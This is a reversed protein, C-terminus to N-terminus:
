AGARSPWSAVSAGDASAGDALARVYGVYRDVMELGIGDTDPDGAAALRNLAREVRLMVHLLPFFREDLHVRRMYSRVVEQVERTWRDREDRVVFVQHFRRLKDRLEPAHPANNYLWEEVFHLLDMLPLGVTGHEWDIVGIGHGTRSTNRPTLDGHRWVRALPLGILATALERIDSFLRQEEASPGFQREYECLLSHLHETASQDWKGEGLHAGGHFAALWDAVARLDRFHARASWGAWPESSRGLLRGDLYSEVGVAADGLHHVGLPQPVTGRLREPLRRHIDALVAQENDTRTNRLAFRSVKVVAVPTRAAPGFPLLVVRQLRPMLVVSRLEDGHVIPHLGPVALAWPRPMAAPGRAALVALCQMRRVVLTHAGVREMARHHLAGLRQTWRTCYRAHSFYWSIARPYETPLYARPDWFSDRVWYIQVTTLGLRALQRRIREPTARRWEPRRRYIEFYLLGGPAVAGAATALDEHADHLRVVLDAVATDPATDVEQALGADHALEATGDPGLLVLRQFRGGAPRPLLFQWNM